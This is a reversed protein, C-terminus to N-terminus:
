VVVSVTTDLRKKIETTSIISQYGMFLLTINMYDLQNQSMNIQRYYAKTNWDSGVVLLDPKETAILALGSSKNAQVRYGLLQILRCREAWGFVPRQGKFEKVFEDTNLGVTLDGLAACRKLFITHGMHPTDFTGLTLVKM